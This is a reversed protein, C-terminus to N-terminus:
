LICVPRRGYVQSMPGWFCPSIGMFLMYLANSLNIIDGTSEYTAAVEPVASLITTSSIPALFSCISMLAVIIIKRHPPFRDYITESQDLITPVHDLAVPAIDHGQSIHSNWRQLETTKPEIEQSSSSDTITHISNVSSNERTKNPFSSPPTTPSVIAEAEQTQREQSM